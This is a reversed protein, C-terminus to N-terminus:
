RRDNGGDGIGGDEVVGGAGAGAGGGGDARLSAELNDLRHSMADM